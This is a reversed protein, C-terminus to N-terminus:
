IFMYLIQIRKLYERKMLTLLVKFTDVTRALRLVGVHIYVCLVFVGEYVLM